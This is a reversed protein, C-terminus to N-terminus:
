NQNKNFLQYDILAEFISIFCIFLFLYAAFNHQLVVSLIGFMNDVSSVLSLYGVLMVFLIISLLNAYNFKDSIKFNLFNLVMGIVVGMFLFLFLTHLPGYDPSVIKLINLEAPFRNFAFDIATFSVSSGAARVTLWPFFMLLIMIFYLIKGLWRTNMKLQLTGGSFSYDDGGYASLINYVAPLNVDLRQNGIFINDSIGISTRSNIKRGNVITGNLSRLDEIYARSNEVFIRSHKSSVGPNDIVVDCGSSRGIIIDLSEYSSKMGGPSHVIQTKNEQKVSINQLASLKVGCGACYIAGPLNEKSCKPCKM